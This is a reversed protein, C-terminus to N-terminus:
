PSRAGSLGTKSGTGEVIVIAFLVCNVTRCLLFSVKTNLVFSVLVLGKYEIYKYVAGALVIAALAYYWSTIFMIVLCLCVGFLSLLRFNCVLVNCKLVSLNYSSM